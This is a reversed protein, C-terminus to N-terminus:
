MSAVLIRSSISSAPRPSSSSVNIRVARPSCSSSVPPAESYRRCRTALHRGPPTTKGQVRQGKSVKSYRLEDEIAPTDFGGQSRGGFEGHEAEGAVSRARWRFTFSSAWRRSRSRRSPHLVTLPLLFMLPRLGAGRRGGGNGGAARRRWTRLTKESIGHRRSVESVVYRASAKRWSGRRRTTPCVGRVAGCRQLIRPREPDESSAGAAERGLLLDLDTM